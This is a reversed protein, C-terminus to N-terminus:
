HDSPSDSWVSTDVQMVSTVREYDQNKDQIGKILQYTNNNIPSSTVMHAQVHCPLMKNLSLHLDSHTTLLTHQDVEDERRM